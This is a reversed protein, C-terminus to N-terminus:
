ALSRWGAARARDLFANRSALHGTDDSLAGPAPLVEADVASAVGWPDRATVVAPRGTARQLACCLLLDDERLPLRMGLERRLGDVHVLEATRVLYSHVVVDVPCANLGRRVADAPDARYDGGPRLRRGHHGLVSWAPVQAAAALLGQAARPGPLLDDDHFWALPADLLPFVAYRNFPGENRSLTVVRDAASAAEVPLAPGGVSADVVTVTVPISQARLAAVIRAVNEPRRHHVLVVDLGTPPLPDPLM